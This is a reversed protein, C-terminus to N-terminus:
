SHVVIKDSVVEFFSILDFLAWLGERQEPTFDDYNDYWWNHWDGFRPRTPPELGLAEVGEILEDESLSTQDDLGFGAMQFPNHLGGEIEGRRVRRELDERHKEAKERDRFTLIPESGVISDYEDNYWWHHKRVVFVSITHTARAM